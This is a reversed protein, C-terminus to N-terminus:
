KKNLRAFEYARQRAKDLAAKIIDKLNSKKLTELAEYTVGKESTVEKRLQEFSKDTQEMLKASGLFTHIVINRALHPSINQEKLNIEMLRALEFLLAPGSGSIPTIKDIEEEKEVVFLHSTNKLFNMLYSNHKPIIHQSTSVINVGHGVLCPTNPMIRFISHAKLTETITAISTGALISIITQQNHLDGIQKSLAKLQQPKCGLFVFDFSSLDKIDELLHGKIKKALSEARIKSPTYTWINLQDDFKKMSIIFASSMTGCGLVAIKM